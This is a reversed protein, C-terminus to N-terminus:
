SFDALSMQNSSCSVHVVGNAVPIDARLIKAASAASTLYRGTDNSAFAITQGAASVFTAGVNIRTSYAVTGNLAQTDAQSCCM